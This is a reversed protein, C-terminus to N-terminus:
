TLIFQVGYMNYPHMIWTLTHTVQWVAQNPCNGKWLKANFHNRAGGLFGDFADFGLRPACAYMCDPNFKIHYCSLTLVTDNSLTLVTDNSLTLLHGEAGWGWTHM